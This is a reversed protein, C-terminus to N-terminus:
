ASECVRRYLSLTKHATTPWLFSKARSIGWEGVEMRRKSDRLLSSIKESLAKADDPDFLLDSRDVIEPISSCNSALVPTGCNMAELPPLGFGEYRSPFVFLTALKYIHPLDEQPIPGLFRLHDQIGLTNAIDPINEVLGKLLQKRSPKFSGGLVLLERVGKERAEAYAQLLIKVNKRFDFGGIYFIFRDPLSYRAKIISTMKEDIDVRFVDDSSIGVVEIKEQCIGLYSKIDNKSHMSDTIILNAKKINIESWSLILQRLLSGRYIKFVKPIVDHLTVVHKFYNRHSLPSCLYPTHMIDINYKSALKVLMYEFSIMNLIDNRYKKNNVSCIYINPTMHNDFNSTDGEIFVTLSENEDCLTSLYRVLNISYQGIGTHPKSIYYGNFGIRM